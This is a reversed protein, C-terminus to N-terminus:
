RETGPDSSVGAANEPGPFAVRRAILCVLATTSIGIIMGGVVDLPFHAGVYIRSLGTMIAIGFFLLSWRKSFFSLSTAGSFASVAHGSPFSYERLSRGIVHIYIRHAEILGAMEKLPRPRDVLIKFIRGVAGSLILAGAFLLFRRFFTKRDSGYLFPIALLVMLWTEGMQTFFPMVLDLARSQWGNNILLFTKRDWILLANVIETM